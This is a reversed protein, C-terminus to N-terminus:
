DLSRMEAVVDALSGLDHAFRGLFLGDVSGELRGMLGPGASGGYLLHNPGHREALVGRVRIAVDAIHDPEAPSDRGIAWVPEYAIVIGATDAVGALASRIQKICTRAAEPSRQQTGEGVCIIPTLGNRVAASAKLAVIRASDGFLERREAHGVLAYRCGAEALTPGSVEGTYPGRDEAAIDQAGISMGTDALMRAAAGLSLFDPLVFVSLDNSWAERRARDAFRDLWEHSQRIGFYMKLNVGLMPRPQPPM